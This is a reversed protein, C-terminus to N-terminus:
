ICCSMQGGRINVHWNWNQPHWCKWFNDKVKVTHSIMEFLKIHQSFSWPHSLWCLHDSLTGCICQCVLPFDCSVKQLAMCRLSSFCSASQEGGGVTLNFFSHLQIKAGCYARVAYVPVAKERIMMMMMMMMMRCREHLQAVQQGTRTERIWFDRWLDVM